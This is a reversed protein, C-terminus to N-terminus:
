ALAASNVLIDLQSFRALVADVLANVSGPSTVDLHLAIV